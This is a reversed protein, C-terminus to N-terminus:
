VGDGFGPIATQEQCDQAAVVYQDVDDAALPPQVLQGAPLRHGPSKLAYTQGWPKNEKPPAASQVSHGGPVALGRSPCDVQGCHRGFVYEGPASGSHIGQPGPVSLPGPDEVQTGTGVGEGVEVPEDVEVEEAELEDVGEDENDDDFDKEEEWDYVEEDEWVLVGMEGWNAKTGLVWYWSIM